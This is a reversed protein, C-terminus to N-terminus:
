QCRRTLLGQAKTKWLSSSASQAAVKALIRCAKDYDEAKLYKVAKRMESQAKKDTMQASKVPKKIQKPSRTTKSKKKTATKRTKKKSSKQVRKKSSARSKSKKSSASRNNKVARKSTTKKVPEAQPAKSTQSTTASKPQTAEGGAGTSGNTKSLNSAAPNASTSSNATAAQKQKVSSPQVDGRSQAKSAGRQAQTSGNPKKGTSATTANPEASSRSKGAKDPSVSNQAAASDSEISPEAEDSFNGLGLLSWGESVGVLISCFLIVALTYFRLRSKAAPPSSSAALDIQGNEGNLFAGQERSLNDHQEEIKGSNLRGHQTETESDAWINQATSNKLSDVEYDSVKNLMDDIARGMESDNVFSHPPVIENSIGLDAAHDPESDRSFSDSEQQFRDALEAALKAAAVAIREHNQAGSEEGIAQTLGEGKKAAHQELHTFLLVSNGIELADGDKLAAKKVGKKNVRTGNGSKLDRVTCIGDHVLIRVHTRSAALDKLVLKNERGRGITYSGDKLDLTVGLEPGEICTLRGVVMISDSSIKENEAQLSLKEKTPLSTKTSPGEFEQEKKQQSRRRESARESKRRPRLNKKGPSGEQVALRPIEDVFLSSIESNPPPPPKKKDTRSKPSSTRGDSRRGSRKKKRRKSASQSKKKSSM